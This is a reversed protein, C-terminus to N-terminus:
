AKGVLKSIFIQDPVGENEATLTKVWSSSSKKFLSNSKLFDVNEILIMKPMYSEHILTIIEQISARTM